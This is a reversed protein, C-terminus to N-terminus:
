NSVDIPEMISYLLKIFIKVEKQRSIDSVKLHRFFSQKSAAYDLTM